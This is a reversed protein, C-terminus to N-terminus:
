GAVPRAPGRVLVGVDLFLEVDKVVHRRRGEAHLEDVARRVLRFRDDYAVAVRDGNGGAEVGVDRDGTVGDVEDPHHGTVALLFVADEAFHVNLRSEAGATATEFGGVAFLSVM